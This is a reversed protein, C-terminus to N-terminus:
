NPAPATARNKEYAAQLDPSQNLMEQAKEAKEEMTLGEHKELRMFELLQRNIREERGFMADAAEEGFHSRRLASLGESQAIADEVTAPAMDPPYSQNAAVVFNKYRDLLDSLQRFAAPPLSQEIVALKERQEDPTYLWLVKEINLRTREALVLNGAPDAKFLKAPEESPDDEDDPQTSTSAAPPVPQQQPRPAERAVVAAETSTSATPAPEEINSRSTPSLGEDDRLWWVSASGLVVIALAGLVAPKKV